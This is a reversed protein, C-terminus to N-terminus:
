FAKIGSPLQSNIPHRNRGAHLIGDCIAAAGHRRRLATCRHGDRMRVAGFSFLESRLDLERGLAQEPSMYAVAGM